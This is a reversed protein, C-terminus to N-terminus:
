KGSVFKSTILYGDKLTDPDASAGSEYIFGEFEAEVTNEPDIRLIKIYTEDAHSSSSNIYYNGYEQSTLTIENSSNESLYIMSDAQQDDWRFKVKWEDGSSTEATFTYTNGFQYLCQVYSRATFSKVSEIGGSNVPNQSLKVMLGNTFPPPDDSEEDCSTLVFITIASLLAMVIFKKM